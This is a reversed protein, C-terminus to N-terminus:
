HPAERTVYRKKGWSQCHDCCLENTLSDVTKPASCRKCFWYKVDPGFRLVNRKAVSRATQWYFRALDVTPACNQAVLVLHKMQCSVTGIAKDLKRRKKQAAACKSRGM